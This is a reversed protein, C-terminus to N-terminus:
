GKKIVAIGKQLLVLLIGIIQKDYYERSKYTFSADGCMHPWSLTQVRGDSRTTLMMYISVHRTWREDTALTFCLYTGEDNELSVEYGMAIAIAIMQKILKNM